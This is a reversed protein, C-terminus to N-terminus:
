DVFDEIIQSWIDIEQFASNKIQKKLRRNYHDLFPNISSLFNATSSLELAMFKLGILPLEM